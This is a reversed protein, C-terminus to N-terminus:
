PMQFRHSDQVATFKVNIQFDRKQAHDSTGFPMFVSLAVQKRTGPRIKFHLGPFFRARLFWPVNFLEVYVDVPCRGTNYVWWRVVLREGPQIYDGFHIYRLTSIDVSGTNGFASTLEMDTWLRPPGNPVAFTAGVMGLMLVVVLGIVVLTKM